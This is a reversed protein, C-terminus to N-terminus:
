TEVRNVAIAMSAKATDLCTPVEDWAEDTMASWARALARETSALASSMEAYALQGLGEMHHEQHSLFEPIEEELLQDLAEHLGTRSKADEHWELGDVVARISQLAALTDITEGTLAMDAGPKKQSRRAIIAGAVMLITGAGFPLGAANGWAVLRDGANIEGSHDMRARIEADPVLRAAYWSSLTVGAVFILLGIRQM